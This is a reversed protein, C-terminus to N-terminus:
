KKKSAKPVGIKEEEEERESSHAATFGSMSVSAAVWMGVPKDTFKVIDCSPHHISAHIWGDICFILISFSNLIDKGRAESSQPNM